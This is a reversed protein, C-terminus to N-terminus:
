QDFAYDGAAYPRCIMSACVRSCLSRGSCTPQAVANPNMISAAARMLETPWAERMGEISAQGVRWAVWHIFPIVRGKITACCM